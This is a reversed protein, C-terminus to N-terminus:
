VINQKTIRVRPISSGVNRQVLIGAHGLSQVLIHMVTHSLCLDMVPASCFCATSKCNENRVYNLWFRKYQLLYFHLALTRRTTHKIHAIKAWIRLVVTHIRTRTSRPTHTNPMCNRYVRINQKHINYQIQPGIYFPIPCRIRVVSHAVHLNRYSSTSTQTNAALMKEIKNDDRIHFNYFVLAWLKHKGTQEFNRLEVFSDMPWHVRDFENTCIKWKSRQARNIPPSPGSHERIAIAWSCVSEFRKHDLPLGSLKNWNVCIRARTQTHTHTQERECVALALILTWLVFAQESAVQAKSDSM